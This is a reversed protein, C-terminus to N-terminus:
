KPVERALARVEEVHQWREWGGHARIARLVIRGGDSAFLRDEVQRTSPDESRPVEAVGVGTPGPPGPLRAEPAIKRSAPAAPREARGGCGLSLLVPFAALLLAPRPLM